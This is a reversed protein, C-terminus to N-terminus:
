GAPLLKCRHRMAASDQGARVQRRPWRLLLVRLPLLGERVRGRWAGALGFHRDAESRQADAQADESHMSLTSECTCSRIRRSLHTATPVRQGTAVDCRMPGSQTILSCSCASLGCCASTECPSQRVKVNACKAECENSYTRGDVGCVPKYNEGCACDDDPCCQPDISCAPRTNDRACKGGPGDCCFTGKPCCDKECAGQGVVQLLWSIMQVATM